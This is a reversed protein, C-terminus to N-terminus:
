PAGRLSPGAFERAKCASRIRDALRAGMRVGFEKGGLNTTIVTRLGEEHRHALVEDRVSKAFDTLNETGVDDVVLMDVGKLRLAYTQGDFGGARMALEAATVWLASQRAELAARVCWAAAVSKGVGVGGMLVLWPLSTAFWERALILAPTDLPSAMANIARAPVGARELLTKAAVARSSAKEIADLESLLVEYAADGGPNATRWEAIAATWTAIAGPTPSSPFRPRNLAAIDAWVADTARM